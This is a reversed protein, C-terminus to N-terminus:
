VIGIVEDIAERVKAANASATQITLRPQENWLHHWALIAIQNIRAPVARELPFPTLTHIPKTLAIKPLRALGLDTPITWTAASCPKSWVKLNLEAIAHDFALKESLAVRFNNECLRLVSCPQHNFDTTLSQFPAIRSIAPSFLAIAAQLGDVGAFDWLVYDSM